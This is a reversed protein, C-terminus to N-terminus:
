AVLRFHIHAQALRVLGQQRQEVVQMGQTGLALVRLQAGHERRLRATAQAPDLALQRLAAQVLGTVAVKAPPLARRVRCGLAERTAVGLCQFFVQLRLLCADLRGHRLGLGQQAQQFRAPTTSAARQRSAPRLQCSFQRTEMFLLRVRAHRLQM